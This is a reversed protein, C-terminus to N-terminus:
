THFLKDLDPNRKIRHHMFLLAVIVPLLCASVIVSWRLTANGTYLSLILEISICLTGVAVCTYAIVNLGRHRSVNIAAILAITIANIVGLIPLGLRLLWDSQPLVLNLILLLASSFLLGALIQYLKKAHWFALVSIYVFIVLSISVPFVSWTILRHVILDIVLTAIIASLLVVSTVQWVIRQLLTKERPKLVGTVGSNSSTRPTALGPSADSGIPTGCLPCLEMDDELEVECVKCIRM